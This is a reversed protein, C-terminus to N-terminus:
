SDPPQLSVHSSSRRDLAPEDEYPVRGLADILPQEVRYELLRCVKYVSARRPKYREAM